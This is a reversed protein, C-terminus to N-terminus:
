EDHLSEELFSKLKYLAEKRMSIDNKKLGLEAFTEDYGEPQFVCDWQFDRDGRPPSVITGQIEGEFTRIEKGDCLAVITKATASATGEKSFFESFKDAQLSDWFVQTLGGPLNGFDTIFLGTQEVIIPRGIEKFGKIVKDTVIEVMNESQIENIKKDFAKVSINVSQLIEVVEKIKHKNSSLFYIEM